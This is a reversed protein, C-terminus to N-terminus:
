RERRIRNANKARTEMDNRRSTPGNMDREGDRGEEEESMCSTWACPSRCDEAIDLPHPFLVVTMDAECSSVCLEPIHRESVRTVRHVTKEGPKVTQSEQQRVIQM